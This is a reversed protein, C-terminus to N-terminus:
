SLQGFILLLMYIIMDRASEEVQRHEQPTLDAFRATQTKDILMVWHKTAYQLIEYAETTEWIKAAERFNHLAYTERKSYQEGKRSLLALLDEVYPKVWKQFDEQTKDSM